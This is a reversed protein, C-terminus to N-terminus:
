PSAERLVLVLLLCVVFLLLAAPGSAASTFMAFCALASLVRIAPVIKDLLRVAASPTIM